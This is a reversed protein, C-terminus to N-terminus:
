RRLAYKEYLEYPLAYMYSEPPMTQHFATDFVAVQVHMAPDPRGFHTEARSRAARQHGPRARPRRQRAWARPRSAQPVGPFIKQAAAIGQLNPPNHLPALDSAKRVVGVM